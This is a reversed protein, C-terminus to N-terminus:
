CPGGGGDGGEGTPSFGGGATIVPAGMGHIRMRQNDFKINDGDTVTALVTAAVLVRVDGGYEGALICGCM